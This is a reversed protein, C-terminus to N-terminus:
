EVRIGYKNCIKKFEDSDIFKQLVEDRSSGSQLQNLWYDLGNPDDKAKRGFFSQYMVELYKTDDLQKSKFEKSAIFSKALDSGSLEKKKLKGRWYLLGGLDPNRNLTTSYFRTVFSNIDDFAKINYQQAINKFENSDIFRKLVELRNMGNSMQKEWYTLGSIDSSADRGFFSQYLVGLYDEDSLDRKKMEDSFVFQRALDAGSLEKDKLKSVWYNLGSSDAERGLVKQYFRKVFSTINQDVSVSGSVKLQPKSINDIASANTQTIAIVSSLLMTLMLNRKM